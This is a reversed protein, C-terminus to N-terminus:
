LSLMGRFAVGNGVAVLGGGGKLGQMRGSGTCSCEGSIFMHQDAAFLATGFM